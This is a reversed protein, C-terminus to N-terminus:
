ARRRQLFGFRANTGSNIDAKVGFDSLFISAMQDGVRVGRGLRRAFRTACKNIGGKRKIFDQLPEDLDKYVAAYRLVRSWKSRMRYDVKEPDATCFIIAAFPEPEKVLTRHGRLWLARRAYEAAKHDHKWWEVVEFVAALYQYIGDRDRTTQYTEFHRQLMMAILPLEQRLARAPPGRRFM